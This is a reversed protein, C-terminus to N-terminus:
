ECGIRFALSLKEEPANVYFLPPLICHLPRMTSFWVPIKFKKAWEARLHAVEISTAEKTM